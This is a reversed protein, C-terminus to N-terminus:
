EAKKEIHPYTTDESGTATNTTGPLLLREGLFSAKEIDKLCTFALLRPYARKDATSCTLEKKALESFSLAM